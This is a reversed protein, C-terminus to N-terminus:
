HSWDEGGLVLALAPKLPLWGDLRLAILAVLTSAVIALGGGRPTPVRHSGGCCNRLESNCHIRAGYESLRDNSDIRQPTPSCGSASM